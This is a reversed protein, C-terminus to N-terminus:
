RVNIEVRRNLPEDVEDGTPVIPEREGRGAVSIRDPMVGGVVVLIGKVTQARLKSLADNTELDGVTDTHGIVAIDPVPRKKLEELVRQLDAKSAETLEDTGTQFYLTFKVAPSPLAVLTNGFNQKIEEPTARTVTKDGTKSVAYPQNLVYRESGRQVVVMGVHGDASPLVVVEDTPGAPVFLIVLAVIAGALVVGM